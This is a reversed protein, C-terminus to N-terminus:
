DGSRRETKQERGLPDILRGDSADVRLKVLAGGTRLLKIEYVWRDGKRELEVEMVQGPSERGVRELVTKLPLIQGAELARRARDHDGSDAAYLPLTLATSLALALGLRDSRSMSIGQVAEITMGELDAHVNAQAADNNFIGTNM